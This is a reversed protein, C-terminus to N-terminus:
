LVNGGGEATELQQLIDNFETFKLAFELLTRAAQIQAAPPQEDDNVIKLLRDAAANLTGQLQRTAADMTDAAADRYAQLFEPDKLYRRLTEPDIGAAKAAAKRTPSVLLAQLAKEKRDNVLMGGASKHSFKPKQPTQPAKQHLRGWSRGIDASTNEASKPTKRTGSESTHM